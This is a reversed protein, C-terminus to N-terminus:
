NRGSNVIRAIDSTFGIIGNWQLYYHLADYVTQPADVKNAVCYDAIDMGISAPLLSLDIAQTQINNM